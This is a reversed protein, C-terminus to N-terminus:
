CECECVLKSSKSKVILLSLGGAIALPVRTILLKGTKLTLTM